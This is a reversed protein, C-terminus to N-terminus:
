GLPALSAVVTDALDRAVDEDLSSSTIQLSSTADLGLMITQYSM